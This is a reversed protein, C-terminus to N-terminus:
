FRTERWRERGERERRAKQTNMTSRSEAPKRSDTSTPIVSKGGGGKRALRLWSLWEPSTITVRNPANRWATLRREEIRILGLAQAERLANKVTSRCVGALAAIHDLTLTCGSNPLTGERNEAASTDAGDTKSVENAVVALVAQEALTFRAALRPPM